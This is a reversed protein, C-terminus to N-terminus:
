VELKTPLTLHTYSVPIVGVAAVPGHLGDGSRVAPHQALHTVAFPCSLIEILVDGAAQVPLEKSGAYLIELLFIKAFRVRSDYLRVSPPMM